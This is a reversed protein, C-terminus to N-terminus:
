RGAQVRRLRPAILVSVAIIGMFIVAFALPASHSWTYLGTGILPGLIFGTGIGSTMRGAASGQEEPSVALSGAAMLGPQSLGQGAGLLLYSAALMILDAALSAVILGALMLWVGLQVYIRVPVGSLRAVVSQAAFQALAMAGIVLGASSATEAADLGLMDQVYFATTQQIVAFVTFIAGILVMFPLLRPDTLKLAPPADRKPAPTQGRWMWWVAAVITLAMVASIYLPALLGIRSLLGGFVPGFVSGLGFAAGILAVGGARNAATTRDAMFATSAPQLGGATATLTMRVVIMLVLVVSPALWGAMGMELVGAFAVTIVAYGALGILIPPMRGIRDSARGWISTAITFAIASCSITLGMAIEPLGIERVIPGLVAFLLTQGMAYIFLGCLLLPVLWRERPTPSAPSAESMTTLERLHFRVRAEVDGGVLGTAHVKEASAAGERAIMPFLM